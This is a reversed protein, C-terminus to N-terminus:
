KERKNKHTVCKERSINEAPFQEFYGKMEDLFKYAAEYVKKVKEDTYQQIVSEQSYVRVESKRDIPKCGTFGCENPAFIRLM